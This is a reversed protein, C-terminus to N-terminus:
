HRTGSPGDFLGDQIKQRLHYKDVVDYVNLITRDRLYAADIVSSIVVFPVKQTVERLAPVSEKATRGNSLKDDLLVVDITETKLVMVAKELTDAYRLLFPSTYCDQMMRQILRYEVLDDDILLINLM